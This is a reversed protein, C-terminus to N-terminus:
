CEMARTKERGGSKFSLADDVSARKDVQEFGTGDTKKKQWLRMALVAVAAGLFFAAVCGVTIGVIAKWPLSDDCYVATTSPLVESTNVPLEFLNTTNTTGASDM